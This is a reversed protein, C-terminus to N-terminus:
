WPRTNRRGYWEPRESSASRASPQQYHPKVVGPRPRILESAETALMKNDSRQKERQWYNTETDERQQRQASALVGGRQSRAHDVAARSPEKPKQSAKEFAKRNVKCIQFRSVYGERAEDRNYGPWEKPAAGRSSANTAAGHGDANGAVPDQSAATDESSAWHAGGDWRRRYFEISGLLREHAQPQKIKTWWRPVTAPGGSMAM